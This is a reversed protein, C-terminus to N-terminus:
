SLRVTKRRTRERKLFDGPRLIPLGYFSEGLLEAFDRRDLTLLVDSWAFATFLIPRDKAPMLITVWDHSLVDPVLQLRNRLELWLSGASSALRPVNATVESLVYASSHLM